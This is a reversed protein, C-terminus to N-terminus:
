RFYGRLHILLVKMFHLLKGYVHAYFASIVTPKLTV